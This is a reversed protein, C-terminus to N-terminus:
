MEDFAVRGADFAPGEYCVREYHIEGSTERIPISCGLCAGIGCGLKNEMSVFCKFDRARSWRAIAHLMPIPGCSYVMTGPHFNHGADLATTVLGPIGASGDETAIVPKLGLSRFEDLCVLTSLDRSGLFVRLSKAADPNTELGSKILREALFVLPPIGIGGGALIAPHEPYIPFGNGLPGIIDVIDGERCKSIVRTGEGIVRFVITVNGTEPNAAMVSFPRRLMLETSKPLIHIFQGPSATEAAFPANLTIRFHAPHHPALDTCEAVEALLRQAHPKRASEM